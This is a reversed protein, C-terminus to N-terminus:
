TQFFLIYNVRFQTVPRLVVLLRMVFIYIFVGLFHWTVLLFMLSSIWSIGHSMCFYTFIGLFHWTVHLLILSFVLPFVMHCAFIHLSVWSIGHWMCFIYTFIGLFHWIVHLFILVCTYIIVHNPCSWGYEVILRFMWARWIDLPNFWIRRKQVFAYRCFSFSFFGCSVFM